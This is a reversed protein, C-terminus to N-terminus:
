ETWGREKVNKIVIDKLAEIFLPHTNLSETRKLNIGLGKAMQMYLINIEYLTEIHDSVFSIPVILINKVNRGALEKLKEDTSPRLWKVPGSKSQYSLNWKIPIRKVIEEITREIHRVYPDGEDIFKEPLSHASFLVYVPSHTFPHIPSDANFSKLGKKIVDVLAEIYLPHDYWALICHVTFQSSHVTCSSEGHSEFSSSIKAAETKDIQYSNILAEKFKDLASGSTALSYQPYLSVAILKKIGDNYIEPIVNEILPHWYRMGVYVKFFPSHTFPHIPLDPLESTQNKAEASRSEQAEARKNLAEELAKAQANTIDLIPSRGGILRYYSETKKSRLMAILRALPKQLFPPGLQIIQRDSFLNYLFPRVAQLSDPGGLNLLVVGITDSHVAFQSSHVM